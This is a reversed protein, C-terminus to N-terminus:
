VIDSNLLEPLVVVGITLEQDMNKRWDYDVTYQSLLHNFLREFSRLTDGSLGQVGM